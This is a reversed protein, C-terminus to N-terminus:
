VITHKQVNVFFNNIREIRSINGFSKNRHIMFSGQDNQNIKTCKHKINTVSWTPMLHWGLNGFIAIEQPCVGRSPVPACRHIGFCLGAGGGGGGGGWM